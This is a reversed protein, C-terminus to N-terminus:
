QKQPTNKLQQARALNNSAEAYGPKLRLAQQFETIAQDLQGNGGLAIGLKDHAVPDDPKIRIAEQFQSIADGPRGKKVLAMGLYYHAPALDPSLQVVAQFQTIAEDLQGTKLLANALNYHADAYDPKLRIAEQFQQLAEDVRGKATLLSGLNNRAEVLGPQLTVAEQFEGIAEDTAGNKALLNGLKYHGGADNPQLHLAERLKSIAADMRGSKALMSAFNYDADAYGPKLRLAEQFQATADNTRGQAAFLNGLNDHAEAYDPKLRIAEQFQVIADDTHGVTALANGLNNHAEPFDPKLRIAEVFEVIAGNLKSKEAFSNALAFHIVAEKPELRVAEEFERIADDTQGNSALAQGLRYHADAFDPKLRIAAQYEAMAENTQGGAELLQALNNHAEVYDPNLRIAERFQALADNTQGKEELLTALNNHPDPLEPGWKIAENFENIAAATNGKKILANGLNNYAVVASQKFQIADQFQTIAADVDNRDLYAIGLNIRAVENNDTVKLCHYFLTESNQWYGIQQRTVALCLVIAAAGALSLIMVQHRWQRSLECAGWSVMLLIGVSPIYTYRDAMSQIGVQVLGIVPLLTVVFWAWGMLLFPQRRRQLFFLFSVGCLFVGALAVWALPWSKPHPYFVAMNVPWFMKFLYRCYSILANEFRLGFPLSDLGVVAGTIKQVAFTTISGAAALAFFPIKEVLLPWARGPQFRQLPWYDLLLLVLPWTVLMPKSMLGLAFCLCALWYTRSRCFAPLLGPPKGPPESPTPEGMQVYRVYLILTLFGLFTSLVDKRESVWAVSEVHLPHWAFLAAVWASRWLAGTLRRLLFLLLVGNFAHFWLSTLHHGAPKLGYLQCDLMHSLVTLPHWNGCVIHCFAWLISEPTLGSQVHLNQTVYVTDDYNVFDHHAVPWYLVVTGLWLIGALLWTRLDARQRAPPSEGPPASRTEKAPRFM